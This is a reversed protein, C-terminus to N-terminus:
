FYLVHNENDYENTQHNDQNVLSNYTRKSSGDLLFHFVWVFFTPKEDSSGKYTM